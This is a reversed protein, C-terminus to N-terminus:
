TGRGKGTGEGSVHAQGRLADVVAQASAFCRAGLAQMPEATPTDFTWVAKGEALLRRCFADTKSRPAAHAVFVTTAIEAVLRNRKEALSVTPRRHQTPFPSLVLLRGQDLPNRWAAPVRMREISRAPCVVIPQTGRLLLDLCEQEMPSHFGGIVPVSADRLSRALDYTRLIVDGPCRSSCFFGLLPHGLIARNGLTWLRRWGSVAVHEGFRFPSGSNDAEWVTVENRM